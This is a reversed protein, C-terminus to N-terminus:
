YESPQKEFGARYYRIAQDLAEEAEDFRAARRHEEFRDKYIRGLVGYSEADGGTDEIFKEMLGIAREQDGPQGRRNLALALLQMVEPANSVEPPLEEAYRVLEGWASADRYRKLVEVHAYPEVNPTDRVAQEVSRADEESSQESTLGRGRPRRSGPPQRYTPYTKRGGEGALEEPLEVRMGPFFEYLPSDSTVRELSLRIVSTLTQRLKDAAEGSVGGSGDLEYLYVRNFTMHYPIPAGSAMIIITVGRRSAHRLGLEYLVNPSVATIDAIMVESRLVSNFISKVILGPAGVEDGRLCELGLETVAPAIVEHYIRDFDIERGTSHEVKRGFPASVYCTKV